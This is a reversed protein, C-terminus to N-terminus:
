NYRAPDAIQYLTAASDATTTMVYVEGGADQGLVLQFPSVSDAGPCMQSDGICLKRREWEGSASEKLALLGSCMYMFVYQKGRYNDDRIRGQTTEM